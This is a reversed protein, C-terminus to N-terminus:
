KRPERVPTGSSESKLITSISRPMLSESIRTGRELTRPRPVYYKLDVLDKRTIVGRVCGETNVVVLHRLGISMFLTYARSVPCAEQVVHPGQNMIRVINVEMRLERDTLQGILDAEHCAIDPEFSAQSAPRSAIEMASGSLNELPLAFLKRRLIMRLQSRLIFGCLKGAEGAVVPFGSHKCIKLLECIRNVSEFPRVTFVRTGIVDSVRMLYYTQKINNELFPIHKLEMGTEYLGENFFNGVHRAMMTTLIIPLLLQVQGTGEMIIVCLSVTSRQVGGLFAVSGALAMHNIIRAPTENIFGHLAHIGVLFKGFLAGGVSGVLLSPLFAGSPVVLGFSIIMLPLFVTFAVALVASHIQNSGQLLERIAKERLGFFISALVNREGHKCGFQIWFDGQHLGEDDDFTDDVPDLRHSEECAISGFLMPITYLLISTIISVLVVLMLRRQKDGPLARMKRAWMHNFFAGFIGGLVGLILFFPLEQMKTNQTGPLSILGYSNLSTSFSKTGEEDLYSACVLLSFTTMLTAALTRWLQQPNWFTCTEELAFLVGGIPAGFAAAFGAAAGISIFDRRDSDSRFQPFCSCNMQRGCFKLMVRGATLGSGVISGLHVLPGEPGVILGSSVSLITGIFKVLIVNTTLFGRVNVGNLYAKTEPIGSGAAGPAWWLVMSASSVALVANWITFVFLGGVSFQDSIGLVVGNRWLVLGKVGTHLAFAIVGIIAGISLTVVWRLFTRSGISNPKDIASDKNHPLYELSQMRLFPINVTQEYDLSQFKSMIQSEAEPSSHQRTATAGGVAGATAGAPLPKDRPARRVWDMDTAAFADQLYEDESVHTRYVRNAEDLQLKEIIDLHQDDQTLEDPGEAYMFEEYSAYRAPGLGPGRQFWASPDWRPGRTPDQDFRIRFHGDERARSDDESEMPLDEESTSSRARLLKQKVENEEQSSMEIDGLLDLGLGSLGGARIRHSAITESPPGLERCGRV